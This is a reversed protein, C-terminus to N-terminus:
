QLASLRSQADQFKPDLELAKRYEAKAAEKRNQHELVSALNYHVEAPSLVAQLQLTGEATRGLRALMLGYNTRCPVNKPDREIGRLYATEAEDTQGALEHSFGLNSYGNAEGGTVEIYKKWSAVAEPFKKLQSLCVSQRYLARKHKPDLKLTEQYQKLAGASDGQTEALQGAAFHTEASIPPDQSTEFPNRQSSIAGPDDPSASTIANNNSNSHNCATLFLPLLLLLPLFNRMSHIQNSGSRM